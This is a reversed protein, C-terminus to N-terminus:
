AGPQCRARVSRPRWARLRGSWRRSGPCRCAQVRQPQQYRQDVRERHPFGWRPPHKIGMSSDGTGLARASSQAARPTGSIAPAIRPPWARRPSLARPRPGQPRPGRGHQGFAGRVLDDFWWQGCLGCRVTHHHHTFPGLQEGAAIMTRQEDAVLAGPTRCTEHRVSNDRRRTAPVLPTRRAQRERSGEPRAAAGPCLHLRSVRAALGHNRSATRTKMERYETFKTGAGPFALRFGTRAAPSTDSARQVRWAALRCSRPKRATQPRTSHWSAPRSAAATM